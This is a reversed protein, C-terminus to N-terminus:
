GRQVGLGQHVLNPGIIKAEGVEFWGIPSRCRRGYLTEFPAMQISDHYSNNYTFEILSFHGDCSGKLDLVCAHLMDKLKQITRVAQRDTLGGPKQHEAKVQQYNPCRAVFDAIDRKMDNWWYVEKLDHYMNTSGLHVSYKSSHAETVMRERLGDVNPVCLGEHYKLTGDNMGLSFDMTKHNHIGEKLKVMFPDVYQKEMVEVVLSLEAM